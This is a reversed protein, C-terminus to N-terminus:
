RSSRTRGPTFTLWQHDADVHAPHQLPRVPHLGLEWVDPRKAGLHRGTTGRRQDVVVTRSDEQRLHRQGAHVLPQEPRHRESEDTLKGRKEPRNATTIM